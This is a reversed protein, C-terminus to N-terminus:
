KSDNTTGGDIAGETITESLEGTASGVSDTIGSKEVSSELRKMANKSMSSFNSTLAEKSMEKGVRRMGAGAISSVGGVLAAKGFSENKHKLASFNGTADNLKSIGRAVGEEAINSLAGSAVTKVVANSAVAVAAQTFKQTAPNILGSLAVKQATPLLKAGLSIASLGQTAAGIVGAALLKAGDFEVPKGSIMSSVVQSGAEMAVGLLFGSVMTPMQGDDDRFSMPNGMCYSYVHLGQPFELYSTPLNACVPDVRIFRALNSTLYRKEFNCLKSEKDREKQTFGYPEPLVPGPKFYTRPHGFSYNATEEVLAGAQDTVASSSGLHDQHYYRISLTAAPANLARSTGDRTWLSEGPALTLSANSASVLTDPYRQSWTQANADFRMLFANAPLLTALDLPETLGNGLFQSGGTLAPLNGGAPTGTLFVTTDQYAYIWASAGAPVNVAADIKVLGNGTVSSSWYASAGLAANQAPDLAPFTGGVRLAVLNWGARLRLTQTRQSSTLSATVRAVRTDGNWVYKVPADYDRVEFYKNIYSTTTTDLPGSPDTTGVKPTVTKTIRRDTYDYTYIARMQANEVAVLRDKFDWTCQLGDIAQMNGNADYDYSRTGGVNTLAHPGPPSGAPRGNRGSRGAAGGSDMAGLNAVPLGNEEQVIDSTQQLMNGIRDYRYQVFKAAAGQYGPYDVRTLRYLSDYTFAQSNFRATAQPQGALDRLDDIRTINSAGDFTYSFSVLQTNLTPHQSNISRLRLRPDYSYTTGVGNGFSITGLQGSPRYGISGIINGAADGSLRTLLNRSDYGHGLQDGDPYTLTELRDASDYAFGTRYSVLQGTLRDPIRKVEYAVRARADYSYHTEGSLDRVSALQGQSNAGAGSSGDGLPVSTAVDYTYTVDPSLGAADLYDETKIRNAGDYSYSIHQGKADITEKLNSADDYIFTMPGRDPDNMSTMRKLGDFVMTKINQQSDKIQRLQDNLDYTYETRWTNLGGPDGTDTIKVVEEVAIMRGLGDTHHVMPTNAHISGTDSDEEDFHREEFPLYQVKATKRAGAWEEPPNFSSIERGMSDHFKDTSVIAPNEGDSTPPRGSATWIDGFQPLGNTAIQFPLWQSKPGGRINYSAANKVIWTGSTTGEEVTALKKGCGDTFSATIFDGGGAKERLRSLVRSAVRTGTGVTLNGAADYSFIRGRSPDAPQYEFALTPSGVTDGPRVINVLRAFTDYGYTTANANFDTSGTVVGFGSDYSASVTLDPKGGGVVITESVPYIHFIPDYGITRQNGIPDLMGTPNGFGDHATRTADIPSDANKFEQTRSLLARTGIQGQVGVYPAGDYFHVKKAVFAGNEDTVSVVDPKSIIWLPLANGGLAYSTTTLREDDFDGGVIGLDAEHTENGYDDCDFTKRTLLNARLPHGLSTSLIGNAEFIQTEVKGVFAFSVSRGSGNRVATSFRGSPISASMFPESLNGDADADDRTALQESPRYLRRVTWEQRARTYVYTDPTLTTQATWDNVPALGAARANQDFDAGAVAHLVKADIKEEVLQRGKLVEEERGGDKTVEDILRLPPVTQPYSDNDRRDAAGTHFRYRTVLSPGSVQGTPSRSPDWGASRQMLGSVPEYLFDDGYDVRQAFAFGRFEHELGDYYADRYVLSSVMQDTQGDGNLDLGCSTHIRRVVDIPFPAKTTWPQGIRQARLMDETSTGYTISTSKGLGNDIRTILNPKGGPMLEVYQWSADIGTNRFFLDKSGNGNLDLLRFITPNNTDRPAYRPLDTGADPSRPLAWSGGAVNVRLSFTSASGSGDMLLLDALGDGTLDEVHVDRLNIADVQLNDGVSTVMVREEAWKGLSCMPWYRVTLTGGVGGSLELLVLDLLRDGNMDALQVAPNSQSNGDVFALSNPLQNDDTFDTLRWVGETDRYYGEVHAFPFGPTITLFDSVKDFNLDVQRTQPDEFAVWYPAGPLYTQSAASNDFGLRWASDDPVELRARNAHVDLRRFLGEQVVTAYDVLGDADTDTLSTEPAALNLTTANAVTQPADFLLVSSGGSVDNEGRNLSVRQVPIGSEPLTSFLDPLGDGNIDAFQTHGSPDAIEPGPNGGGLATISCLPMQGLQLISYVFILPPLTNAPNGDRGSQVVRKLLSVGTPVAQNQAHAEATALDGSQYAYQLDYARVLSSSSRVEIRRMRWDTRVSFTPRYDEFVDARPDYLFVVEHALAGGTGSHSYTIRSPYLIGTRATYEYEIRNGHLDITTDLMWCFTSGQHTTPQAAQFLGPNMVSSWRGSQGRYQGFIHRTGDRERMEWADPVFDANTDIQRFRQFGSENECRWDREANNLPVLEEGQFVFTDTQTYDPFGKDTQRKICPLDLSWGLGAVGNGQGSNYSLRVKPQLGARGPPLAIGVGYSSTGTNLQPEFSEGLGEISGPGSPLSIVNTKVGSKDPPAALLLSTVCLWISATLAQM